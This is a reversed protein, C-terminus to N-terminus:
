SDKSKIVAIDKEVEDLRADTVEDVRKIEEANAKTNATSNKYLIGILTLLASGLLGIIYIEDM